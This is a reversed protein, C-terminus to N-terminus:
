RMEEFTAPYNVRVLCLGCAPLTPGALGPKREELLRIFEGIGLKGLGVQVLAGATNRIQHRVFANAIISLIILESDRKVGAEFVHRVTSKEPEDGIESAFSAFDHTGILAKSAREMAEVDLGGAIRYAFRSTLPSRTPNNLISYTYERSVAMRRPNFSLAVKHASKVAIDEPLHHNLGHIYAELPLSGATKFTIVQGKAHVGTDTRSSATVRVREGTLDKLAKELEAQITPRDAQFQFGFYATGEYEVVLALRFATEITTETDPKPLTMVM